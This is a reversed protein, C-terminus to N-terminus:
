LRPYVWVHAVGDQYVAWSRGADSLREFITVDDYFRYEINATGNSTAAHAFQRNPWTEGPVSAHWDTLVAFQKALTGLVPIEADPFCKMIEDPRALIPQPRRRLWNWVRKGWFLVTGGVKEWWALPRATGEEIQRRYSEVFGSMTPTEDHPTGERGFMQLVAAQHSHDPDNGLVAKASPSTAVRRGDPKAPDVPCSPKLADLRPYGAGDHDLYGLLHDFSRNELMLVVVHEIRGRHEGVRAEDAM